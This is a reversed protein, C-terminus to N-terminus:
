HGSNKGPFIGPATATPLDFVAGDRLSRLLTILEAHAWALPMASGTPGGNHLGQGPIDAADWVQEPLLGGRHSQTVMAKLLQEAGARNGRALEYHAREGTLLSWGRGKGNRGMFASGDPPEGYADHTFRHWVPGNKTDTKLTADIVKVTNRIRPDNADRLGFRVLALADPSVIECVKFCGAEPPDYNSIQVTLRRLDDPGNTERPAIRVYYGDVGIQRSLPTDTVYLWGEIAADWDDAARGWRRAQDPAGREGAMGAAFRLASIATALTFPTYGGAEEWRDQETAPGCQVLFDAARCMTPWPDLTGWADHRHLIAALLIFGATQDNQTAHRRATGNVWMNQPWSGDAAQTCMLHFMAARASAPCGAALLGMAIHVLDRPWVLHYGGLDHDGRQAGWPISLSAMMAGPFEKSEHARLVATSVRYVDFAGHPLTALPLCCDQFARWGAVYDRLKGDFDVLLGARAMYGAAAPTDGFGIAIIFAGDAALLDIEGTLAVNGGPADDHCQTLRFNQALDQLGDSVGVYGCSRAKWGASCAVALAVHDRRAELLPLGNLDGCRAHNGAGQNELHPALHLFLRYDELRGQRPEFKVRMLLTPREPDTIITKHLQYRGQRCTNTLHFGPTGAAVPREEHHTGGREDSFFDPAATVIFGCERTNAQDLTPYYLEDLIGHAVTFWLPSATGAATGIGSKRSTTWTPKDGPHGPAPNTKM